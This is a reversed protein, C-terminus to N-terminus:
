VREDYAQLDKGVLVDASDIYALLPPNGLPHGQELEYEWKCKEQLQQSATRSVQCYTDLHVEMGIPNCGGLVLGFHALLVVRGVVICYNRGFM